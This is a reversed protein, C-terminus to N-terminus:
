QSDVSAIRNSRSRETSVRKRRTIKSPIGRTLLGEGLLLMPTCIAFDIMHIETFGFVACVLLASFKFADCRAAAGYGSKLYLFYYTLFSWAGVQLLSAAYFCDITVSPYLWGNIFQNGYLTEQGFFTWGGLQTYQLVWYGPRGNFLVNLSSYVSDPLLQLMVVVAIAEFLLPVLAFGLVAKFDLCDPRTEFLLRLLLYGFLIAASTRSDTIIVVLLGVVLGLLASSARFKDWSATLGIFSMCAMAGLTNPHTFFFSLRVRGGARTVSGALDGTMMWEIVQLLGLTVILTLICASAVKIVQRVNVEGIGCLLLCATPLYSQGCKFYSIFSLLLLFSALAARKIEVGLLVGVYRILLLAFAVPMLPLNLIFELGLNAATQDVVRNLIVLAFGTYFFARTTKEVAAGDDKSLNTRFTSREKISCSGCNKRAVADM